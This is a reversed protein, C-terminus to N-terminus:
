NKPWLVWLRLPSKMRGAQEGAADGAGWFYDARVEGKIATGTDQALALQAIPQGQHVASMWVPAGLPVFRPDVAISRRETLPVALSGLPGQIAAAPPNPLFRFFVFSPNTNLLETAKSPNARVWAKISQASANDSQLEGREILTRGISKYPHGNMDAFGLRLTSGDPLVLRGSGQVQLFFADVVDQVWAIEKGRLSPHNATLEARTYYPVLKGNELRGRQVERTGSANVAERKVLDAPASYLPVVYPPKRTLSAKLIPEYYGTLMGEFKGQADTLAYGDFRTTFYTRVSQEDARLAAAEACVNRWAPQAALKECSVLWARWGELLRDQAFGPLDTVAVRIARATEPLPFPTTDPATVTATSAPTPTPAPQSPPAWINCSALMWLGSALLLTRMSHLCGPSSHMTHNIASINSAKPM